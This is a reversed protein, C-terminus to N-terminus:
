SVYHRLWGSSWKCFFEVWIGAKRNDQYKGEEVKAEPAYCTGPKHKGFLVWKGQKKGEIDIKNITDKGNIPNIEWSQSQAAGISSIFILILIFKKM